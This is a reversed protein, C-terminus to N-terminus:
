RKVRRFMLHSKILSLRERDEESLKESSERIFAWFMAGISALFTIILVILSRKPKSKKDPPQAVDLVQITSMNKAESIKAVEYQKTLLEFLTEQIKFDRMLRAYRIGLDPVDSTAIFIDDSIKKGTPSQELKQLQGKLEAVGQRLSKVQPNQETQSSLMVGLEVERSALEGKLQSIAQIIATAQDDIRIAKNQEQFTKL